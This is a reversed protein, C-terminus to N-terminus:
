KGYKKLTEEHAKTFTMGMREMKYVMSKMHKNTHHKSHVRLRMVMADSLFNKNKAYGRILIGSLMSKRTLMRPLEKKVLKNYAM